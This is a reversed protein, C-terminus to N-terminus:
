AFPPDIYVLDVKVKNEKLLACASLCDGLILRNETAVGGVREMCVDEYLPLGKRLRASFEKNNQFDLLAGRGGFSPRKRGGYISDPWDLSIYKKPM